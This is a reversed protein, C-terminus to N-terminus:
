ASVRHARLYTDLDEILYVIKSGVRVYAPGTGSTRWKKLTARAIGTYAAADTTNLAGRARSGHRIDDSTVTM